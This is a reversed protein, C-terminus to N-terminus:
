VVAVPGRVLGFGVQAITRQRCLGPTWRIPAIEPDFARASTERHPQVAGHFRSRGFAVKSICRRVQFRVAIRNIVRPLQESTARLLADRVAAISSLPTTIIEFLQTRQIAQCRSHPRPDDMYHRGDSDTRRKCGQARM